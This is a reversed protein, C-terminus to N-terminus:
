GDEVEIRSYKTCGKNLSQGYLPSDPNTCRCSGPVYWRCGRCISRNAAATKRNRYYTARKCCDDSCYKMRPNRGVIPQGCVPCLRTKEAGGDDRGYNHGFQAIYKGYSMGRAEAQRLDYCGRCIGDKRVDSSSKCITCRKM